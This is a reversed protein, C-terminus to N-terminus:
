SSFSDAPDTKRLDLGNLIRKMHRQERLQKRLSKKSDGRPSFPLSDARAPSPLGASSPWATPQAQNPSSLQSPFYLLRTPSASKRYGAESDLTSSAWRLGIALTVLPVLIPLLPLWLFATVAAGIFILVTGVLNTRKM